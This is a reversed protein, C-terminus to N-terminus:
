PLVESLPVAYATYTDLVASLQDIRARAHGLVAQRWQLHAQLRELESAGGAAYRADTADRELTALELEFASLDVRAAATAMAAELGQQALNARDVVAALGADAAARQQRLADSEMLSQPSFSWSLSVSLVGRVTPATGEPALGELGGGGNGGGGSAYSIAPQLTRSELGVTVSGGDDLLWTYGGQLTPLLAREANRAGVDALALDLTARIVDPPTGLVPALAFPGDLRADGALSASRAVALDRQRRADRLSAMAERRALEARGVELASAGGVEARRRAGSEALEALALGDEALGVGLDALWVGLAAQVAQAELGARAERAQLDAREAEIRRQDGLDALDGFLFPRLVVRVSFSESAEDVDFLDEFPPPLPDTAPDVQLRQLDFQGSLAIPARVADARLAAARALADAAALAPHGDLARLLAALQDSAAPDVETSPVETAASPSTGAAPTGQAAATAALLAALLAAAAWRHRREPRRAPGAHQPPRAGPQAGGSPRPETM